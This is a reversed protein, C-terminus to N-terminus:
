CSRLEARGGEQATVVAALDPGASRAGGRLRTAWTFEQTGPRAPPATTM